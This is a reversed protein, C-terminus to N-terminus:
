RPVGGTGLSSDSGGDSELRSAGCGVLEWQAPISQQAKVLHRLNMLM